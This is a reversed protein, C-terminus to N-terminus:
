TRRRHSALPDAVCPRDLLLAKLETFAEKNQVLADIMRNGMERNNADSRQLLVWMMALAPVQSLLMLVALVVVAGAGLSQLVQLASSM